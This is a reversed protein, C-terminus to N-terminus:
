MLFVVIDYGGHVFASVTTSSFKRILGFSLGLLLVQLLGDFNYQYAHAATFLLTPLVIGLRPQLVGRFVLEEGIGAAVAIVIAGATGIGAFLMAFMEQDTTNWGMAHWLRTSLTDVAMNAAVVVVVAAMALLVQTRTPWILSLRERTERFTRKQPFGVAFLSAPLAWILGYLSSRVQEQPATQFGGEQMMALIPPQGSVMLPTLALLSLTVATALATAHVFSHADIPIM